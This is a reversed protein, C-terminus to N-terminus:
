FECKLKEANTCCHNFDNTGCTIILYDNEDMNVAEASISALIHIIKENPKVFTSMEDNNLTKNLIQSLKRGHSDTM